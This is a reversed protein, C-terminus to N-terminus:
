PSRLSLEQGGVSGTSFNQHHEVHIAMSHISVQIFACHCHTSISEKFASSGDPTYMQLIPGTNEIQEMCYPVCITIVELCSALFYIINGLHSLRQQRWPLYYSGRQNLDHKSFESCEVISFVIYTTDSSPEWGSINDIWEKWVHQRNALWATISLIGLVKHKAQFLLLFQGNM